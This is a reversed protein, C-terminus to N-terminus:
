ATPIWNGHFGVPVRVPLQVAAVPDLTTADVVELRSTDTGADHSFGMLVGDHEAADPSNPVFVFEGVTSGSGFTRSTSTGTTADHRYLTNEVGVAGETDNGIGVTYGYRHPTGFLREDIRPFEHGGEALPATRVTGARRDLTWRELTPRGENPGNFDTAFMRNHRVLDLVVTDGEDYANLTHFVYCPDIDFWQTDSGQGDRPLLGIRAPYDDAWRYPLNAGAMAADLDFVVPLDYIVVSSATVACDHLMPAGTTEVDVLKTIHASPDLVSYRVKNGWAWYYSVTHLEGTTPDLHPHASFGGGLTGDFDCPGITDLEDTLEYPNSGAEVIAFTRGAHGIINTNASFDFDGNIPGPHPPEGLEAAVSASRVWRNRYWEARGDRIRLGHVMGTGTFWHYTAPDVGGIPNPGNRLYRGDLHDPLTGEVPLDAITEETSVPAYVGSLYRNSTGTADPETTTM